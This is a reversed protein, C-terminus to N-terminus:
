HKPPPLPLPVDYLLERISQAFRDDANVTMDRSRMFRLFALVEGTRADVLAVEGRFGPTYGGWGMTAIGIATRGPTLKYGSGRLFVVADAAAGAEFKGVREGLTYRGKTVRGPKKALQVRVNDYRSQLDAVAYRAADDRAQAVPNPLVEVGRATFERAVTSYFSRGIQEAEPIGGESGRTGIKNFGVGAPLIVVKHIAVKKSALKENVHAWEACAPVSCLLTLALVRM